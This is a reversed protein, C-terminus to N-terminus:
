WILKRIRVVLIRNLDCGHCGCAGLDYLYGKLSVDAELKQCKSFDGKYHFLYDMVIMVFLLVM